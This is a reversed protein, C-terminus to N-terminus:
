SVIFGGYGEAAGNCNKLDLDEHVYLGRKVQKVLKRMYVPLWLRREGATGLVWGGEVKWGAFFQCDANDLNSGDVAIMRLADKPEIGTGIIPKGTLADWVIIRRDEGGSVIRSGDRSYAVSLVM